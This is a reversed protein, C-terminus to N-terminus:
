DLFLRTVRQVYFIIKLVRYFTYIKIWAKFSIEYPESDIEVLVM